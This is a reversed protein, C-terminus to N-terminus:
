RQTWRNLEFWRKKPLPPYEESALLSERLLAEHFSEFESYRRKVGWVCDKL